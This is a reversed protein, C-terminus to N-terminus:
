QLNMKKLILKTCSKFKYTDVLALKTDVLGLGVNDHGVRQLGMFQLM